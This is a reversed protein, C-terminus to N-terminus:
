RHGSMAGHPHRATSWGLRHYLPCYGSIGTIFFDLGLLLLVVATVVWFVSQHGGILLFLGAVAAAGGGLIRAGREVAGVNKERQM